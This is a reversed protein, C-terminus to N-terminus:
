QLYGLTKLQDTLLDETAANEHQLTRKIIRTTLVQRIQDDEQGTKRIYMERLRDREEHHAQIVNRIEEPDADTQYLEDEAPDTRLILKWVGRDRVARGPFTHNESVRVRDQRNRGTGDGVNALDIGKLSRSSKLGTGSLLTPMIDVTEVAGPKLGCTMSPMQILLPVRLQIDYLQRHGVHFREGLSEGHDSFIVICLHELQDMQQLSRFLHELVADCYRVGGNYQSSIYRYDTDRLNLSSFTNWGCKDTLDFPPPDQSHFMRNYPDPPTYPCHIDYTHLFVLYPNHRNNTVWDLARRCIREFGGGRDDYTEFGPANGYRHHMLGGDVFGATKWGAAAVTGALTEGAPPPERSHSHLYQSTFIARHSTVTSPTQALVDTFVATSRSFADLFPTIPEPNGYLGLRDQRLTDLCILLINAKDPEGHNSDAASRDMPRCSGALLILSLLGAALGAFSVRKSGAIHCVPLITEPQLIQTHGSVRDVPIRISSM